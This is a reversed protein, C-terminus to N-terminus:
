DKRGQILDIDNHIACPKFITRNKDGWGISAAWIRDATVGCQRCFEKIEQNRTRYSIPLPPNFIM